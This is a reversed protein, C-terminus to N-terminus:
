GGYARPLGWCRADLSRPVEPVESTSRFRFLLVRLGGWCEAAFCGARRGMVWCTFGEEPTESIRREKDEEEAARGTASHSRWEPPSSEGDGM